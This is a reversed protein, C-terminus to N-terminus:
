VWNQWRSLQREGSAPCINHMGVVPYFGSTPCLEEVQVSSMCRVFSHTRDNLCWSVAFLEAVRVSSMGRVCSLTRGRPCQVYRQRQSSNQLGSVPCVGSATSHEALQVSSM